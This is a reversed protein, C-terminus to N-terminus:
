HNNTHDKKVDSPREIMYSKLKEHIIEQVKIANEYAKVADAKTPEFADSPYRIGVAYSELEEVLLYLEESVQEKQGMLDVLYALSHTKAFEIDQHVLYAKLIKEVYQQCHFCISDTFEEKHELALKAMGLDHGAKKIWEKVLLKKKDM